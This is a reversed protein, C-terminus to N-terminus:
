YWPAVCVAEACAYLNLFDRWFFVCYFLLCMWLLELNTVGSIVSQDPPTLQNDMLNM